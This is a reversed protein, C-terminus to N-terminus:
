FDAFLCHLEELKQLGFQSLIKLRNLRLCLCVEPFEPLTQGM